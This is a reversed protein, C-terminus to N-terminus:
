QRIQKRLRTAISGMIETSLGSTDVRIPQLEQSPTEYEAAQKEFLEPRAESSNKRASSRSAIRELATEKSCYCELLSAAAGHQRALEFARTRLQNTLFTGDLVVSQGNDLYAAAHQLLQDYVKERLSTAYHGEGYAAPTSSVGFKLRRIEDTSLIDTALSSALQRAVTSKGTGMLGGVLLLMPKGLRGAYHEAWQLYQHLQRVHHKHLVGDSQQLCLSAVKARVCSRYSKYFNLVVEPPQDGSITQWKTLLQEGVQHAGLRDCDMALFCLDDVADVERFETSFEVCDIVAPPSELYVHEARLDGHGDVIRGERARKEFLEFELWLSQCLASHIRNVAQQQDGQSSKLLAARNALCHELLNNHYLRPETTKSPLHQYFHALYTVLERIQCKQLRRTRIMEDLAVQRPLRRMKILYDVPQGEGDLALHGRADATIAILCLYTQQALRRNLRLEEACAVERAHPTSFDLFEFRVPKKLKYAFQNTLVIWSIHTEMVSVSDPREPYSGPDRLFRLITATSPQTVRSLM